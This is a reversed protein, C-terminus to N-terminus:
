RKLDKNESKVRSSPIYVYTNAYVPLYAYVSEVPIQGWINRGVIDASLMRIYSFVVLWNDMPPLM